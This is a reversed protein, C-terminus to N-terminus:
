AADRRMAQKGTGDPEHLRESVGIIILSIGRAAAAIGVLASIVIAGVFVWRMLGVGVVISSLAAIVFLALDKPGEGSYRAVLLELVGVLIAWLGILEVAVYITRGPWCIATVAMVLGLVGRVRSARKDTATGFLNVMGDIAVLAVLALLAAVATMSASFPKAVGFIADLIRASLIGAPLAVAAIGFAIALVGTLVLKWWSGKERSDHYM